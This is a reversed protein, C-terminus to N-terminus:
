FNNSVQSIGHFYRDVEAVEHSDDRRCARRILPPLNPYLSQDRQPMSGCAHSEPEPAHEYILNLHWWHIEWFQCGLLDEDAVDLRLCASEFPAL